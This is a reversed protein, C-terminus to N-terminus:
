AAARLAAALIAQTCTEVLALLRLQPYASTGRSAASRGIRTDIKAMDPLELTTGDLSGLRHGHHFAGPLGPM